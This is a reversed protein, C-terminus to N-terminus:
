LCSFWMAYVSELLGVDVLSGMIILVFSKQEQYSESHPIEEEVYFTEVNFKNAWM